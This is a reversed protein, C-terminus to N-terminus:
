ALEKPLLTDVPFKRAELTRLVEQGVLGTAGVVALKMTYHTLVAFVGRGPAQQKNRAGGGINIAPLSCFSRANLSPQGRHLMFQSSLHGIIVRSLAADGAAQM